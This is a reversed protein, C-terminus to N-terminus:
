LEGRAAEQSVLETIAVELASEAEAYREPDSKDDGDTAIDYQVNCWDRIVGLVAVPGYNDLAQVLSWHAERTMEKRSM